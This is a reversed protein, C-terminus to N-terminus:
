IDNDYTASTVRKGVANKLSCKPSGSPLPINTQSPEQHITGQGANIAVLPFIDFHCIRLSYWLHRSGFVFSQPNLVIIQM